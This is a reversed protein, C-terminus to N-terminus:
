PAGVPAEGFTVPRDSPLGAPRQIQTTFGLFHVQSRDRSLVRVVDTRGDVEFRRSNRVVPTDPSAAASSAACSAWAAGDARVIACFSAGFTLRSPQCIVALSTM